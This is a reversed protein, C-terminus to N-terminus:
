EMMEELIEVTKEVLGSCVTSHLNRAEIEAAGEETSIDFGLLERCIISRSEEKFRDTFEKVKLYVRPKAIAPEEDTLMYKLGLVMVAGTVAGCIQGGRGVGGGFGSAIKLAQEEGFGLEGAFVELVAQSCNYGRSFNELAREARESM